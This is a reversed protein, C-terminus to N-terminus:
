TELECGCFQPEGGAEDFFCCFDNDCVGGGDVCCEHPGSDGCEFAGIAEGPQALTLFGGSVFMVALALLRSRTKLMKGGQFPVTLHQFPSGSSSFEVDLTAAPEDAFMPSFATLPVAM